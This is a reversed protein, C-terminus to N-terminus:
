AEVLENFGAAFFKDASDIFSDPFRSHLMSATGTIPLDYKAATEECVKVAKERKKGLKANNGASSGKILSNRSNRSSGRSSRLKEAQPKKNEHGLQISECFGYPSNDLVPHSRSSSLANRCSKLLSRLMDISLEQQIVGRNQECGYCAAVLTGALVPM